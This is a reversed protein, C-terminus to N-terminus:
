LLEVNGNKKKARKATKNTLVRYRTSNQTDAGGRSHKFSMVRPCTPLRCPTEGQIIRQSHHQTVIHFPFTLRTRPTPPRSSTPFGSTLDVIFESWYKTHPLGDPVLSSPAAPIVLLSRATSQLERCRSKQPNKHVM